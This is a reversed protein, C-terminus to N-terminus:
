KRKINEIRDLISITMKAIDIENGVYARSKTENLKKNTLAFMNENTELKYLASFNQFAIDDASSMIKPLNALMSSFVSGLKLM